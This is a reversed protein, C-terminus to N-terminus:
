QDREFLAISEVHSTHPFMNVVGAAALRYGQTHVLVGSDRALTAPDCAVYVIRSPPKAAFSKVLEIAGERPPDLLAKDCPPLGACARADFLDALVFRCREALGNARANEQARALLGASGEVGLVQAGRSAIPLTFNGLGCFFDAIREGPRPDLLSVARGVLLRNVAHNVQTFDTPGFAIRLGYEPLTYYLGPAAPPWFPRTSDPGEPQLWLQVGHAEAFRKLRERDEVEVAELVRLVLATLADGVAVEIQPIRGQMDLTDILTRLPRILASVKPPLVECSTMETVYSSRRERFGVLSGGKKEVWRVSMRARNRYGWALGHPPRLVTEPRVRGLHWLADELVRQKAAVQAREEIHQMSCGGCTGFFACRPSVRAAGEQEIRVIQAAEWAPKKRYASYEVDEGTIAGDVFITKGDVHAVGRGERDLSEIRAFPM